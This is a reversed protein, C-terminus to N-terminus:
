VSRENDQNEIFASGSCDLAKMWLSFRVPWRGPNAELSQKKALVAKEFIALDGSAEATLNDVSVEFGLGLRECSMWEYAQPLVEVKYFARQQEEGRGDPAYWYGFDDLLRREKGAVFWHGLEHCASRPYNAKFRIEARSTTSPALYFPEDFGGVLVTNYSEEFTANFIEIIELCRLDDSTM